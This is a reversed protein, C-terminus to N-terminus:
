LGACQGIWLAPGSTLQLKSALAALNSAAAASGGSNRYFGDFEAVKRYLLRLNLYFINFFVAVLHGTWKGIGVQLYGSPGTRVPKVCFPKFM